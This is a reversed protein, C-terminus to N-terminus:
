GLLITLLACAIVVFLRHNFLLREILSGSKTDFQSLEGPTVDHLNM